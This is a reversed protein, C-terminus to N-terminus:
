LYYCKTRSNWGNETGVSYWSIKSCWKAKSYRVWPSRVTCNGCPSKVGSDAVLTANRYLRARRAAQDYSCTVRGYAALYGDSTLVYASVDCHDAEARFADTSGAAFFLGSVLSLVILVQAAISPLSKYANNM